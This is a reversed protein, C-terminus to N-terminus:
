SYDHPWMIVTQYLHPFIQNLQVYSVLPIVYLINTSVCIYTYLSKDFDRSYLHIRQAVVGMWVDDLVMTELTVPCLHIWVAM